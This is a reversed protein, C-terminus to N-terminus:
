IYTKVTSIDSKTAKKKKFIELKDFYIFKCIVTPLQYETETNPLIHCAKISDRPLKMGLFNEFCQLTDYTDDKSTRSNFPPNVVVVSDRRTYREQARLRDNINKTFNKSSLIARNKERLPQVEKYLTEITQPPKHNSVVESTVNLESYEKDEM